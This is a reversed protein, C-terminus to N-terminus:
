RYQSQQNENARLREMFEFFKDPKFWKKEYLHSLWNITAKPSEFFAVTSFTYEGDPCNLCIFQWEGNDIGPCSFYGELLTVKKKCIECNM